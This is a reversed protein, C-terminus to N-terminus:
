VCRVDDCEVWAYKLELIDVLGQNALLEEKEMYELEMSDWDYRGIDPIKCKGTVTATIRLLQEEENWASLSFPM